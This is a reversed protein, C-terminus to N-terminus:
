RHRRRSRDGHSRAYERRRHDLLQMTAPRRPLNQPDHTCQLPTIPDAFSHSGLLVPSSPARLALRVLTHTQFSLSGFASNHMAFLAISRAYRRSGESRLLPKSLIVLCLSLSAPDDSQTSLVQRPQLTRPSIDAVHTDLGRGPTMPCLTAPRLVSSAESLVSLHGASIPDHAQGVAPLDAPFAPPKVNRATHFRAAPSSPPLSIGSTRIQAASM